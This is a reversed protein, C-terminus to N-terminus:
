FPLPESVVASACLMYSIIHFLDLIQNLAFLMVLFAKRLALFLLEGCAFATVVGFFGQPVHSFGAALRGHSREVHHALLGCALQFFLAKACSLVWSFRRIFYICFGRLQPALPEVQRFCNACFVSM